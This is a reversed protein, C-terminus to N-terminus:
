RRLSLTAVIFDFIQEADAAQRECFIMASRFPNNFSKEYGAGQRRLQQQRTTGMHRRSRSKMERERRHVKAM